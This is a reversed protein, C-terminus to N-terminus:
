NDFMREFGTLKTSKSPNSPRKNTAPAPKTAAKSPTPAPAEAKEETATESTAAPETPKVPAKATKSTPKAPTKTAPAAPKGKYKIEPAIKSLEKPDKIVLLEVRRNLLKKDFDSNDNLPNKEGYYRYIVRHSEVGMSELFGKAAQARRASLAENAKDDGENDTHGALLIIWEPNKSMERGLSDLIQFSREWLSASGSDFYLHLRNMPPFHYTLSDKVPASPTPPTAPTPTSEPAKVIESVEVYDYVFMAESKKSYEGLNITVNEKQNELASRNAGAFNGISIYKEGGAAVYKATVEMWESSSSLNTGKVPLLSVYPLSYNEAGRPNLPKDSLYVSIESIPKGVYIKPCVVRMKITYEVKAKLPSSFTGQMVETYNSLQGGKLPNVYYGFMLGFCTKGYPTPTFISKLSMGIGMLQQGTGVCKSQPETYIDPTLNTGKWNVPFTDNPMFDELSPNLVLNQGWAMFSGLFCLSLLLIRKM